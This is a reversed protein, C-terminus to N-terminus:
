KVLDCQLSKEEKLLCVSSSEGLEDKSLQDSLWKAKTTIERKEISVNNDM